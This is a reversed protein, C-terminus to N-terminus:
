PQDAYPLTQPLVSVETTLFIKETTKDKFVLEVFFARWGEAPPRVDTEYFSEKNAGHRARLPTHTWTKGTVDIRFDRATANDAQWVRVEMPETKATVHIQGASTISWTYEPMATRNLISAYFALLTSTESGDLGHGCNPIYRLYKAGNLENFYFRSSDLLFFQDGSSNLLLKPITLTARYSYPDIISRSVASRPTDMADMIGNEVYAGVARSFEGYAARHHEMSREMNLLDIVQPAIAVVRKDAAATLWTTWGRKSKGSVVFSDVTVPRPLDRCLATVTDMARVTSKTMPLLTLWAPNNNELFHAWAFGIIDDESRRRREKDCTFVLPQNPVNSILATVSETRLAIEMLQSSGLKSYDIQNNGGGIILLATKHAIKNPVYVVMGHHWLPQDIDQETLWRQSTMKLVYMSGLENSQKSVRSWQYAADPKAIYDALETGATAFWGFFTCAILRIFKKYM